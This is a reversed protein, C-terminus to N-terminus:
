CAPPDSRQESTLVDTFAGGRDHKLTGARMIMHAYYNVGLFDHPASMAEMDGHRIEPALDGLYEAYEEPYKGLHVADLLWLDNRLDSISRRERTGPDDSAPSWWQCSITIGVQRRPRVARIREVAKGHAVLANHIAQYALKYDTLGPPCRGDGFGQYLFCNPENLTIWNKVRDGLREFLIEAYDAYLDIM